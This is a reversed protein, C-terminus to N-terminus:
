RKRSSGGKTPKLNPLVQQQAKSWDLYETSDKKAWFAREADESKFNPIKKRTKMREERPTVPSGSAFLAEPYVAKGM